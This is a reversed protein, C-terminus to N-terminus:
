HYNHEVKDPDAGKLIKDVMEIEELLGEVTDYNKAEALTVWASDINAEDLKVDGSQWDGYFSLIVGPIGDPQMFTM